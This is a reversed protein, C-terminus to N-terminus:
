PAPPFRLEVTAVGDSMTFSLGIHDREAIKRIISLGLGSGQSEASKEFKAHRFAANAAVNNRVTLVPGPRLSVRVEGTGHDRANRLVNSVILAAADPHVAILAGEMDRDDFLRVSEPQEALVLRLVQLLDCSGANGIGAEARSLQLLREVLSGLRDIASAMRRPASADSMGAAILQAQASATALPTRLEHAANTTFQREAEIYQGIRHLYGNLAQPIPALEIPLDSVTVPSLDSAQRRRLGDAFRLAPALAVAVARRVSFLVIVLVPLMLVLMAEISELLEDERWENSQGVEVSLDGEPATLRYVRWGGADQAGEVTLLSWPADGSVQGARTVRIASRENQALAPMEGAARSVDMAFRASEELTEDLLEAMEHSIVFIAIALGVLWGLSVGLLLRRVLRSRLSWTRSM